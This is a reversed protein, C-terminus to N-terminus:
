RSAAAALEEPTNINFFPDPTGDFAVSGNRREALWRHMAAARGAALDAALVDALDTRWLAVTYHMRGGSSAVVVDAPDAAALRAVLDGPIFPTDCAVTVLRAFGQGRAWGLGAAVGALPGALTAGADPLVPLGFSRFRGPDGNANIALAAVQPAFRGVVHALLTRDGLPRLAKDGGIRRGAGGALVVGAIANM